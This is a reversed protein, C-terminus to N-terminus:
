AGNRARSKAIIARLDYGGSYHVDSSEVREGGDGPEDDGDAHDDAAADGPEYDCGTHDDTPQMTAPNTM